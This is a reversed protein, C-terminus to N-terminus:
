KWDSKTDIGFAAIAEGLATFDDATLAVVLAVSHATSCASGKIGLITKPYQPGFRM